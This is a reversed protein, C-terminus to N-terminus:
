IRDWPQMCSAIEWPLLMPEIKGIHRDPATATAMMMIISNPLEGACACVTLVNLLVV